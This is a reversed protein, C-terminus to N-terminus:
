WVPAYWMPLVYTPPCCGTTTRWCCSINGYHRDTNAHDCGYSEWAAAATQCTLLRAPEM